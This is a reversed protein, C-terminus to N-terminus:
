GKGVALLCASLVKHCVHVCSWLHMDSAECVNQWPMLSVIAKCPLAGSLSYSINWPQLASQGKKHGLTTRAEAMIPRTAEELPALKEFLERKSFGEATKM